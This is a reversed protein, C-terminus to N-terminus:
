MGNACRKEGLREADRTRQVGTIGDLPDALEVLDWASAGAALQKQGDLVVLGARV